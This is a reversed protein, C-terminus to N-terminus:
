IGFIRTLIADVSNWFESPPMNNEGSRELDVTQARECVYLNVGTHDMCAEIVRSSLYETRRSCLEITYAIIGHVGYLWNESSGVTGTLRPILYEREGFQGYIRLEYGNIRSMEYGISRFLQEDPNHMSTHMWPFIMFQGYDHYSLSISIQGVADVLNKVAQTENECFPSEGRFNGYQDNSIFPYMYGLPNIRPLDWLFGYNRNLDVGYSTITTSKGDFGYNPAQNTREMAEVGDPNVMPICYIETSDLIDTVRSESPDEDVEGDGDNDFGDIIDENILGDGDDDYDDLGYREVVHKIFYIVVEFSPKENGHHAGMFLVGPETEDEVQVNDSLKVMWIQRGQYTQGLSELKMIDSHNAALDELLETMEDYTYYHYPEMTLTNISRDDYDRTGFAPAASALTFLVISLLAFYAKKM